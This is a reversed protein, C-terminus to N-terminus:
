GDERRSMRRTSKSRRTALGLAEKARGRVRPDQHGEAVTFLYAEADVGGVSGLAALAEFFLGGGRAEAVEIITRSAREDDLTVLLSLAELAREEDAERLAAVLPAFAAPHRREALRVLAAWAREPDPSSLAQVLEASPRERDRVAGDLATLAQMFAEAAAASAATPLTAHATGTTRVSLQEGEDALPPRFDLRVRVLVTARGDSEQRVEAHVIRLRARGAPLTSSPDAPAFRASQALVRRFLTRLEPGTLPLHPHTALVWDDPTGPHVLTRDDLPERRSCASLLALVVLLRAVGASRSPVVLM